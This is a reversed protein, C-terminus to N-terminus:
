QALDYSKIVLVRPGTGGQHLQGYPQPRVAAFKDLLRGVAEDFTGPYGVADTLRYDYDISWYLEVGAKDAWGKLVDRLTQGKAGQWSGSASDTAAVADPSATTQASAIQVPASSGTEGDASASMAADSSMASSPAASSQDDGHAPTMPAPPYSKQPKTVDAPPMTLSESSPQSVEEKPTPAPPQSILKEPRYSPIAGGATRDNTSPENRWDSTEDTGWYAAQKSESATREGTDDNEQEAPEDAKQWWALKKWFPKKKRRVEVREEAQATAPAQATEAPKADAQQTIAIPQTGDIPAPIDDTGEAQVASPAPAQTMQQPQAPSAHYGIIVTNDHLTYGLGQRALMDALVHQWPRGGEWSVLVGPNVGGSFSYRYGPPVVQQLAMVLPMDSGFGALVDGGQPAAPEASPAAAPAAAVPEPAPAPAAAPQPAPAVPAPALANQHPASWAAPAPSSVPAAVPAAAAPVEGNIPPLDSMGDDGAPAASQPLSPPTELPGKWEFGAQASTTLAILAVGSLM